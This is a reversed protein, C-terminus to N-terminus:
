KMHWSTHWRKIALRARSSFWRRLRIVMSWGAVALRTFIAVIMMNGTGVLRVCLRMMMPPDRMQGSAVKQHGHLLHPINM